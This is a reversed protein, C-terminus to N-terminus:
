HSFVGSLYEAVPMRIPMLYCHQAYSTALGILEQALKYNYEFDLKFTDPFAVKNVNIWYEFSAKTTVPAIGAFFQTHNFASLVTDALEIDFFPQSFLGDCGAALKEYAYNIETNLEQRYPDFGCYVNLFDFKSKLESVLELVTSKYTPVVGPKIPDGSIILIETLGLDVLPSIIEIHEDLTSDQSRIHALCRINHELLHRVAEYSRINIRKIDPINIGTILSHRALSQKSLRTLNDLDRPVLELFIM